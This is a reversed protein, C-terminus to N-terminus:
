KGLSKYSDILELYNKAYKETFFEDFAIENQKDDFFKVQQSKCIEFLVNLIIEVSVQTKLLGLFLANRNISLGDDLMKMKEDSIKM